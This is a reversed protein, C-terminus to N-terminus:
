TSNELHAIAKRLLSASHCLAEKESDPLAGEVIREVGRDSVICPVSLCLGEIGYEGDLLTSVTLVSKQGRLVASVIRVLALGVAFCTAGKYDIIHYASDRVQQEIQRREAIWDECKACAPCYEDIKVGGVHTMSWAAFESDGHEGLVYAHVNHADVGCHRSLM